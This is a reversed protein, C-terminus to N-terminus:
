AKVKRNLYEIAYVSVTEALGVGIPFAIRM